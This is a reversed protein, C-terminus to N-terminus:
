NRKPSEVFSSSNEKDENSDLDSEINSIINWIQTLKREYDLRIQDSISATSLIHKLNKSSKLIKDILEVHKTNKM